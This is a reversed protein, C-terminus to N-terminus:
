ERTSEGAPLAATPAVASAKESAWGRRVIESLIFEVGHKGYILPLHKGTAIVEPPVWASAMREDFSLFWQPSISDGYPRWFIATPSGLYTSVIGVGAQYSIVFKAASTVSWLEGLNTKGILNTWQLGARRLLPKLMWEYYTADYNAGVTVIRLGLQGYIRRGLEVWDEPRWLANRNHGDATNGHLPGPYFVCYPGEVRMREESAIRFDKWIDWRVAHHPLWQELRIGHELARNPLLAVYQEGGFTYLGDDIYNYTGDESIWPGEKHISFPRMRVSSVFKFRRVFDMARSDVQNNSGVLSVHIDGGPDVKDRIAEIKHLAWVSDGIGTPLLFNM